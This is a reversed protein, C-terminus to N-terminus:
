KFQFEPPTVLFAGSSYTFTIEACTGTPTGKPTKWNYQYLGPQTSSLNQLGSGGAFTTTLTDTGETVDATCLAGPVGYAQV